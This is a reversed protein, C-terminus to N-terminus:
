WYYALKEAWPSSVFERKLRTFWAKRVSQPVDTGGCSNYGSPGYCNVARYLAYAKNPASVKPDAILGKYIEGRSFPKGAFLSPTGGLEDNAPQEDLYYPIAYYNPDFNNIRAFEGLCLLATADRPASSLTTATARISPCVFGTNSGKWNFVAIETIPVANYDDDAIEKANAPVLNVDRLFDAYGGRTLNKYLLAFLAIDRERQRATKNTAQMRLLAPGATYRLLIERIDADRIVSNTAFVQELSKSREDRLALALEATGRQFPLKASTVQAVLAARARADGKADLALTRLLQRSYGLYGSETKAPILRLVEAPDNAVYFAHVALVYDYLADNSAFRARQGDLAARTIPVRNSDARKPDGDHRMAKLDIVALLMADSVVTPDLELLIKNDIEQVLDALSVNRKSADTLAFQEVYAALLKEKNKGLWYVKRLLGRASVSYEGDPFSKLYGLFGAEADALAQPNGVSDKLEGYEGFADAIAANLAVRGQMYKTAGALWGAGPKSISDFAARAAGFDGDYFAAAGILYRAFNQGQKSKVSATGKAAIDRALDGSQCQPKLFARAAGLMMREELPIDKAKGVAEIFAMSGADNTLCRTGWGSNETNEEEAKVAPRLGLAFVPYDFPEAQGRRGDANYSTLHPVGVAKHRDHLLMLLNVRTDNGPSLLATSSCGDLDTQKIKWSVNCSSDSSAYAPTVGLAGIFIGFGLLAKM